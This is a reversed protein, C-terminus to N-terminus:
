ESIHIGGEIKNGSGGITVGGKGGITSNHNAIMGSGTQSINTTENKSDSHIKDLLAVLQNAFEKDNALVKKLEKRFAAQTDEDEPTEVFDKLSEEKVSDNQFKKAILDLLNAFQEGAKEQAINTLKDITNKLPVKLSVGLGILIPALLNVVKSAVESIIISDM